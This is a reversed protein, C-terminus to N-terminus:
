GTAKGQRLDAIKIELQRTLANFDDKRLIEQFQV